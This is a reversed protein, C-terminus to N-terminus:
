MCAELVIPCQAGLRWSRKSVQLSGHNVLVSFSGLISFNSRLSDHEGHDIVWLTLTNNSAQLSKPAITSILLNLISDRGYSSIGARTLAELLWRLLLKLERTSDVALADTLSIFLM